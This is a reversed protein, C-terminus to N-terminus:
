SENYRCIYSKTLGEISYGCSLCSHFYCDNEKKLGVVYIPDKQYVSIKIEKPIVVSYSNSSRMILDSVYMCYVSLGPLTKDVEELLVQTNTGEAGKPLFLQVSRLGDQYCMYLSRYVTEIPCDKNILYTKPDSLEIMKHFIKNEYSAFSSGIKDSIQKINKKNGAVTFMLPVIPVEHEVRSDTLFSGISRGSYIYFEKNFEAQYSVDSNKLPLDSIYPSIM